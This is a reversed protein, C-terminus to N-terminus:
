DFIIATVQSANELVDGGKVLIGHKSAVGGGVMVATPTALGLACPCAVVLVACGFMFAFLQGDELGCHTLYYRPLAGVLDAISWVSYTLVALM